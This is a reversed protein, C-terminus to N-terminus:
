HQLWPTEKIALINKEGWTFGLTKTRDIRGGKELRQATM